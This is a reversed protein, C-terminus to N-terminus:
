ENLAIIIEHWEEKTCTIHVGTFIDERKWMNENSEVKGPKYTAWANSGLWTLAKERTM